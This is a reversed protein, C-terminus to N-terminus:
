PVQAGRRNLDRDRTQGNDYHSPARYVSVGHRESWRMARDNPQDQFLLRDADGMWVPGEIWRFGSASEELSANDLIFRKFRRDLIEVGNMM